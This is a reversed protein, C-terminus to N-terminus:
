FVTSAYLSAEKKAFFTLMILKHKRFARDVLNYQSEPVDMYGNQWTIALDELKTLKIYKKLSIASLHGSSYPLTNEYYIDYNEKEIFIIKGNENRKNKGDSGKLPVNKTSKQYCGVYALDHLLGIIRLSEEQNILEPYINKYSDLINFVNYSHEALGGKYNNHKNTSAPDSFFNSNELYSILNEIGERKIYSLEKLIEERYNM